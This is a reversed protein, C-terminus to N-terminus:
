PKVSYKQQASPVYWREPHTMIGNSNMKYGKFRKHIAILHNPVYLFTYPQDEHLISHIRRYIKQRKNQDLTRRGEVLLEDVTKNKYSVFNFQHEGIQSSHFLQYCDPDPTVSWAGIYADFKRPNMYQSLYTTWEYVQIDMGIGLEKFQQQVITAVREASVAGQVSLLTFKFPTDKGGIVKHLIGDKGPKWGAERLLKKSKEPDYPWPRVKPNNAWSHLPFPSTSIAGQDYIVNKILAQRDIAMTLAQRVKKDKFLPNKPNWGIYTFALQDTVYTNYYDKLKPNDKEETYQEARM